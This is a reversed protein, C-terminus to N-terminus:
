RKSQALFKPNEVEAHQELWSQVSSELAGKEAITIGEPDFRYRYHLALISHLPGTSVSSPRAEEIKRIWSSLTEWPYRVYGWEILRKEILYFESHAGPKIEVRSKKEQEKKPPKVRKRSYLRRALLLILPVLLWGVHRTIGGEREQWRWESFKFILWSWIDYLPEWMSAAEEEITLWSSPTTDFNHWAGDIYVLAWAHAHRARVIFRDELGSFEQVSYGIAYRAPIGAARLLLVTATAFYECHGSRSHLLFDWLPTHNYDPSKLTLSYKFDRQFFAAVTKLIEPPSKESLGLEHILRFIAPKERQPVIVDTENPPSDLSTSPNFRVQYIILGPGEEVKVAGFQNQEMKITPLHAIELAGNPLKLMGKGGSLRDSVTLSKSAGQGPRLNWTTGDMKPQVAKFNSHLAFWMSSKYINYSSERLLIPQDHDFETNVRFVIRNSLKLPGMDGIATRARYPGADKRIFGTFWHLAKEELTLQLNHLGIHGIYGISGTLVLLTVWLIPSFRKSRASWLAWASLCLLGVYFWPTRVNAASASLICLAFYPYTLNITTPHRNEENARKRRFILFLASTDIKDSTSYVQAALLPILALPLWQLMILIAQTSRNSAYLYAVMGLLILTCLDSIRCFDSPSLDLRSKVLRSGELVIAMITALPLLGTQWGWFILSTGLLLPPTKM